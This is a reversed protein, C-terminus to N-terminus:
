ILNYKMYYTIKKFKYKIINRKYTQILFLLMCYMMMNIFIFDLGFNYKYKINNNYDITNRLYIIIIYFQIYNENYYNIRCQLVIM